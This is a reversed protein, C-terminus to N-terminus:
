HVLRWRSLCLVARDAHLAADSAPSVRRRGGRHSRPLHQRYKGWQRDPDTRWGPAGVHRDWQETLWVGVGPLAAIWTPVSAGNRNVDLIWAVWERVEGITYSIAIGIPVVLFAIIFIIALTAGITRNGGINQLM